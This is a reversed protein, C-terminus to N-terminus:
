HGETIGWFIEYKFVELLKPLVIYWFSIRATWQLVVSYLNSKNSIGNKFVFNQCAWAIANKFVWFSLTQPKKEKCIESDLDITMALKCITTTDLLLCEIATIFINVALLSRVVVWSLNTHLQNIKYAVSQRRSQLGSLQDLLQASIRSLLENENKLNVLEQELQVQTSQLGIDHPINSPEHITANRPFQPKRYVSFAGGHHSPSLFGRSGTERSGNM